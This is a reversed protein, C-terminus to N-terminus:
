RPSLGAEIRAAARMIRRRRLVPALEVILSASLILGGGVVIRWTLTEGGLTVAFLASFVPELAMIVVARAADIRAQAWSQVILAGLGAALALYVVAAWDGPGAPMVMGGPLAIALHAVGLTLMQIASLAWPSRGSSWRGLLAVHFSYAVAGLVLLLEGAGAHLGTLGLVAAGALALVTGASTSRAPRHRWLAWAVLPTGVVYLATLFGSVSASARAIGLTQTVQAATYVLGLAIGRVWTGADARRLSPAFTIAGAAGAIVFRVALLDLVPIRGVVDKTLPFTSGWVLAVVVLLVGPLLGGIGGRGVALAPQATPEGSGAPLSPEVASAPLATPGGAPPAAAPAAASGSGGPLEPGSM